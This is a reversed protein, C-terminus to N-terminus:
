AIIAARNVLSRTPQRSSGFGPDDNGRHAWVGGDAHQTRGLANRHPRAPLHRERSGDFAGDAGRDNNNRSVAM